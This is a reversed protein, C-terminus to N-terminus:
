TTCYYYIKHITLFIITKKYLIGHYDYIITDSVYYDEPRSLTKIHVSHISNSASTETENVM